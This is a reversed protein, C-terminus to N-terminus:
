KRQYDADDGNSGEEGEDEQKQKVRLSPYEPCFTDYKRVPKEDDPVV